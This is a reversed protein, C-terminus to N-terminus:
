QWLRFTDTQRNGPLYPRVDPYEQLFGNQFEIRLVNFKNHRDVARRYRLYYEDYNKLTSPTRNQTIGDFNEYTFRLLAEFNDLYDALSNFHLRVERSTYFKQIHYVWNLQNKVFYSEYDDIFKVFRDVADKNREIVIRLDEIFDITAKIETIRSEVKSLDELKVLAQDLDATTEKLIESFRLTQRTIPPLHAYKDAEIERTWTYFEMGVVFSFSALFVMFPIIGESKRSKFIFYPTTVPALLVAGAWWLPEKRRFCDFLM